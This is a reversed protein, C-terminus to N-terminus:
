QRRVISLPNPILAVSGDQDTRLVVAGAQQWATIAETRPHGYPNEAGVSIIAVRAGSWPPFRPDGNASGHHPVKVVDVDPAPVAAMIAAQAEREIDGTLLIRLGPGDAEDVPLEALMVISANNPVSGADIRRAPWLVTFETQQVGFQDGGRLIQVPVAAQATWQEAM